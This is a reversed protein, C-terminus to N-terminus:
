PYKLETTIGYYRFFEQSQSLLPFTECLHWNLFLKTMSFSDM